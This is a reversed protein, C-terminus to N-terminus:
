LASHQALYPALNEGPMPRSFAFGQVYEVGLNFLEANEQDDEVGEGIVILGLSRGLGVISSAIARTPADSHIRSVFARDIKLGDVSLDRVWSLGCWGSGFDDLLVRVGLARLARLVVNAIKPNRILADETVEIILSRPLVAAQDLADKIQDILWPTVLDPPINVTVSHGRALRQIDGIARHLVRSTLGVM